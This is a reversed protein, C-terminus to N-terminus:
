DDVENSENDRELTDFKSEEGNEDEDAQIPEYQNVVVVKAGQLRSTDFRGKRIFTGRMTLSQFEKSIIVDNKNKTELCYCQILISILVCCIAFFNIM